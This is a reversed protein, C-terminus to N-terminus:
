DASFFKCDYVLVAGTDLQGLVKGEITVKQGAKLSSFKQKNWNEFVCQVGRFTGSGDLMIYARHSDLTGLESKISDIKGTVIVFTNQWKSNAAIENDEFEKYLTSASVANGYSRLSDTFPNFFMAWIVVATFITLLCSITRSTVKANQGNEIQMRSQPLVSEKAAAAERLTTSPISVNSSVASEMPMDQISLTSESAHESRQKLDEFEQKCVRCVTSQYHEALERGCLECSSTSGTM